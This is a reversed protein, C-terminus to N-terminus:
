RGGLKRRVSPVSLVLLIIAPAFVSPADIRWHAHPLLGARIEAIHVVAHGCFFLTIGWHVALSSRPHLACWLFGLGALAFAVGIDRIFHGNFPGTHPVAAPLDTYWSRPAIIMWAGNVFSLLSSVAYILRLM